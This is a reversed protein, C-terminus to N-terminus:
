WYAASGVTSRHAQLLALDLEHQILSLQQVQGRLEKVSTTLSTQAKLREQEIRGLTQGMRQLDTRVVSIEQSVSERTTDTQVALAKMQEGAHHVEGRLSDLQQLLADTQAAINDQEQRTGGSAFEQQEVPAASKSVTHLAAEIPVAAAQPPQQDGAPEPRVAPTPELLLRLRDASISADQEALRTAEAQEEAQQRKVRVQTLAQLAALYKARLRQRPLDALQSNVDRLREHIDSLEKDLRRRQQDQELVLQRLQTETQQLSGELETRRAELAQAQADFQPEQESASSGQPPPAPQPQAQALTVSAASSLTLISVGLVLRLPVQGGAPNCFQRISVRQRAPQFIGKRM